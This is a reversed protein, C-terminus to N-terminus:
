DEVTKKTDMNFKIGSKALEALYLELVQPDEDQYEIMNGGKKVDLSDLMHTYGGGGLGEM